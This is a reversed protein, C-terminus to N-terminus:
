GGKYELGVSFKKIVVAHGLALQVMNYITHVHVDHAM